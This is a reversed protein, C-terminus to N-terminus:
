FFKQLYEKKSLLFEIQKEAQEIMQEKTQHCMALILPSVWRLKAYLIEEHYNWLSQDILEIQDRAEKPSYTKRWRYKM